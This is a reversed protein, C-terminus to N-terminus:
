YWEKVLNPSESSSFNSQLFSNYNWKKTCTKSKELKNELKKLFWKLRFIGGDNPTKLLNM